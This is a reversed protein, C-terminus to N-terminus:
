RGTFLVALYDTIPFEARKLLQPDGLSAFAPNTPEFMGGGGGGGGGGGKKGGGNETTVPVCKKAEDNYEEGEGCETPAPTETDVTIAQCEKAEENYEEGEGCETTDTTETTTTVTTNFCQQTGEDYGDFGQDICEQNPDTTETTIVARLCNGDVHESPLSGDECQLCESETTANNDCPVTNETTDEILTGDENHTSSCQSDWAAQDSSLNSGGGFSLEGQPRGDECVVSGTSDGGGSGNGTGSGNGGGSGSGGGSGNNEGSGEESDPTPVCDGNDNYTGPSGDSSNCPSGPEYFLEPECTATVENYVENEGCQQETTIEVCDGFEDPQYGSICGGCGGNPDQVRLDDDCKEVEQGDGEGGGEEATTSITAGSETTYSGGSSNQNLWNLLDKSWDEGYLNNLIFDIPGVTSNVLFNFVPNNGIIEQFGAEAFADFSSFTDTTGDYNIATVEGTQENINISSYSDTSNEWWSGGMINQELFESVSAKVEVGWQTLTNSLNGNPDIIGGLDVNSGQMVDTFVDGILTAGGSLLGSQIVTELSVEGNLVAQEFASQVSGITAATYVEGTINAFEALESGLGAGVASVLLKEPDFSGSTLQLIGNTVMSNAVVNATAASLGLKSSLFSSFKATQPVLLESGGFGVMLAIAIPMVTDAITSATSARTEIGISYTGWNESADRDVDGTIRFDTPDLGTNTELWRSEYDNTFYGLNLFKLGDDTIDVLSRGEAELKTLLYDRGMQQIIESSRQPWIGAGEEGQIRPWVENNLQQLAEDFTLNPNELVDRIVDYGRRTSLVGPVAMNGRAEAEEAATMGYYEHGEPWFGNGQFYEPRTRGEELAM